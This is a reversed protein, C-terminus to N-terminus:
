YQCVSWKMEKREDLNLAHYAEALIRKKWDEYPEVEEKCEKGQNTKNHRLRFCRTYRGVHGDMEGIEAILIGIVVHDEKEIEMIEENENNKLNKKPLGVSLTEVLKNFDNLLEKWQSPRLHSMAIFQSKQIKVNKLRCATFVAATVYQPHEMDKLQAKNIKYKELIEEAM